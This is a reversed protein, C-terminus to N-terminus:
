NMSVFLYVASRIGDQPTLFDHSFDASSKESKRMRIQGVAWFIWNTAQCTPRKTFNLGSSTNVRVTFHARFLWYQEFYHPTFVLAAPFSLDIRCLALFILQNFQCMTNKIIM